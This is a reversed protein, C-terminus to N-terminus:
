EGKEEEGDEGEEAESAAIGNQLGLVGQADMAPLEEAPRLKREMVRSRKKAEEIERSAMELRRHVKDLADGFKGFETKVAGLVKWVESSRQEIALTRFGMQLSTLLAALTTPGCVTVRSERQLAETLGPRRLIEAFLGETPLFLIAFDTTKPPFLYKQSIKRCEARIGQELASAALEAAHGDGREQADVLRAYDEQPFKSDIPLWIPTKDEDRGPLKIAFEVRELGEERPSYNRVFQDPTLIQELLNGLQVEGWTGRTKVNGLIKKLDGVGVALSKMEGLGSHVMELRESVIKFSEGLRQELTQHLKEDVTLRIQELKAENDKQLQTLKTEVTTRMAELGSENRKSLDGLQQAFAQLGERQSATSENLRAALVERFDKLANQLETRNQADAARSADQMQQLRADLTTRLDDLRQQLATTLERVAGAIEERTQRAANLNESRGAQLEARVAENVREVESRIRDNIVQEPRRLVLVVLIIVAALALTTAAILLSLLVPDM